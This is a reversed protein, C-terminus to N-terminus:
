CIHKCEGYLCHFKGMPTVDSSATLGLLVSTFKVTKVATLKKKHMLTKEKAM